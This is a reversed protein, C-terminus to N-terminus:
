SHISASTSQLRHAYESELSDLETQFRGLVKARKAEYEVSTQAATARIEALQDLKAKIHEPRRIEADDGVLTLAIRRLSTELRQRNAKTRWRRIAKNELQRIRERSVGFRDGLAQLTDSLEGDLGFRRVVVEHLREGDRGALMREKFSDLFGTVIPGLQENRIAEVQQSSFGGSTLLISLRTETGYVATLFENLGNVQQKVNM